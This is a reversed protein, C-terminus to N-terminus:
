YSDIISCYKRARDKATFTMFESSFDLQLDENRNLYAHYIKKAMDNADTPDFYITSSPCCEKMFPLDSAIVRKGMFSAEIPAASFCELLSPFILCDINKYFGPCQQVKIEGTSLFNNLDSFGLEDMERDTFSFLIVVELDFSEKLIEDVTKLIRINKHVYPRGLFGLCFKDSPKDKVEINKWRHPENYISSITNSVIEIKEKKFGRNVLADKVHNQEVVLMDYNLFLKKQIYYKLKRKMRDFFGLLTYAHSDPYIIWPQAFGCIHVKCDIPYYFPGFITFCINYGSFIEKAKSNYFSLGYVDFIIIRELEDKCLLSILNDFVKSSVVIDYDYRKNKILEVIFSVAVQVGGGSHLNSANVLKNRM